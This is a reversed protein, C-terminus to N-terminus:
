FVSLDYKYPKIFQLYSDDKDADGLDVIRFDGVPYKDVVEWMVQAPINRFYGISEAFGDTSSATGNVVLYTKTESLHIYCPTHVHGM